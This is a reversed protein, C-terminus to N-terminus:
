EATEPRAARDERGSLTVQSPTVNVPHKGADNLIPEDNHSSHSASARGVQFHRTTLIPQTRNKIHIMLLWTAFFGSEQLMKRRNPKNEGSFAQAFSDPKTLWASTADSDTQGLANRFAAV